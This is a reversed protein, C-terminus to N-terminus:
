KGLSARALTARSAFAERMLIVDSGVAIFRAGLAAFPAIQDTNGAFIGVPKGAARIRAAAHTMAAMVDPHMAEPGYGGVHGMDTALDAPGIFVADVGETNAIADINEIARASEVQVMLAVEQNANAMYTTDAGYGSVRAVMAGVGRRGQPAYRMAQALEQAQAGTEVMPVLVTQFGLDLVQKIMWDAGTVVRVAVPVHGQLVRLQDRLSTIDNPGHEGDLVVWDFGAQAAVEAVTASASGVWLGLCTEDGRLAAILENKPTTM